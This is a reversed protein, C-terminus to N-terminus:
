DPSTQRPAHSGAPLRRNAGNGHTMQPIVVSKHGRDTEVAGPSASLFHTEGIADGHPQTGAVGVAGELGFAASSVEDPCQHAGPLGMAAEGLGPMTSQIRM